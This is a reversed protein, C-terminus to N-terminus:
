QGDGAPGAGGRGFGFLEADPHARGLCADRIIAAAIQAFVIGNAGYSLAFIAGPWEPLTGVYPLGDATESFTGAWAYEPCVDLQPYLQQFQQRLEDAKAAILQDRQVPDSFAEDAGGIMVRGDATTRAYLYPRATEWVLCPLPDHLPQSVIAYSSVLKVLDRCLWQL